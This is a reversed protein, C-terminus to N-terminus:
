LGPEGDSALQELKQHREARKIGEARFRRDAEILRQELVPDSSSLGRILDRDIWGQIRRFLYWKFVVALVVSIVIIFISLSDM